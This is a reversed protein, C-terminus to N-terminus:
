RVGDRIEPNPAVVDLNRDCFVCVNDKDPTHRIRGTSNRSICVIKPMPVPLLKFAPGPTSGSRM